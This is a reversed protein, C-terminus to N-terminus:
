IIKNKEETLINSKADRILPPKTHIIKLIKLVESESGPLRRM